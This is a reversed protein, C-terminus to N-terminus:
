VPKVGPSEKVGVPETVTKDTDVTVPAPVEPVQEVVPLGGTYYGHTAVTVLMSQDQVEPEYSM